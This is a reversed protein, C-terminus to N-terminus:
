DDDNVGFEEGVPPGVNIEVSELTSVRTALDTVRQRQYNGEISSQTIFRELVGSLRDIAEDTRIQQEAVREIATNTRDSADFLDQVRPVLTATAVELRDLRVTLDSIIQETRDLANNVQEPTRDSM